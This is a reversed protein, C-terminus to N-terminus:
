LVMTGVLVLMIRRLGVQHSATVSTHDTRIDM